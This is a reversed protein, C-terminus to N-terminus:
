PKPNLTQLYHIKVPVASHKSARDVSSMQPPAIMHPNNQANRNKAVYSTAEAFKQTNSYLILEMMSDMPYIHAIM